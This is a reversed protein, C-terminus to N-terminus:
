SFNLLSQPDHPDLSLLAIDDAQGISGVSVGGMDLGLGSSQTTALEETNFVQFQEGSNVGGQEVGRRDHIPGM